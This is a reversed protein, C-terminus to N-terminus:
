QMRFISKKLIFDKMPNMFIYKTDIKGEKVENKCQKTKPHKDALLIFEDIPLEMDIDGESKDYIKKKYNYEEVADEFIQMKEMLNPTGDFLSDLVGVHILKRALAFGVTKKKVFDHIDAYPRGDTIKNAVKEGLGRLISLKNRITGNKYDIVM